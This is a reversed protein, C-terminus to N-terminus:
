IEKYMYIHDVFKGKHVIGKPLYGYEVFGLKKYLNKAIPNNGFVGLTIIKLDKLKKAEELVLEMLTTGIGKNRFDKAMTIGFTGVHKEAKDKM